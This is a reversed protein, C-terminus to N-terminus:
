YVNDIIHNQRFKNVVNLKKNVDKKLIEIYEIILNSSNIRFMRESELTDLDRRIDTIITNNFSCFINKKDRLFTELYDLNKAFNYRLDGANNKMCLFPSVYEDVQKSFIEAKSIDKDNWEIESYLLMRNVNDLTKNAEPDRVNRITNDICKIAKAILELFNNRDEIAEILVECHKDMKHANFPPMKEDLWVIHSIVTSIHYKFKYYVQDILEAKFLEEIKYLLLASTYYMLTRHDRLFIKKSIEDQLRGSFRSAMHPYNLFVSAFSKMQSEPNVIQSTSVDSRDRYQGDRREYYLQTYKDYSNFFSELEEQYEDMSILQIEQVETQNNTAKVINKIITDDQTIVIKVSIWMEDSILDKNEYLVNSTQCGNVVYFNKITYKGMGKSLSKGVITIGNNLLGFTEKIDSNLTGVIDQNVRNNETGAFDRVNLEFIGRRVRGNEDVILNLYEKISMLAFYAESVKEIYPIEIKNKLEFTASNQVKTAEYQKRIYSKDLIELEIADEKFIDLCKLTEKIRIKTSVHNDDEKYVGPTVYYLHCKLSKIYEYNDLLKQIMQYKAKVVDNMIKKTDDKGRFMDSVGDGFTGLEKTSFGETTKTQVFFFEVSYEMHTLLLDDLESKSNIYRNNVSIAIGDIGADSGDGVCTSLLDFNVINKTSLCIYNIFKEFNKTYMKSDNILHQEAVFKNFYKELIIDM